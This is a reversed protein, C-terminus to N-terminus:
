HGTFSFHMYDQYNGSWNGGWKWGKAKFAKVLVGNRPISYPSKSPNWFSGAYVTSGRHSYNERVNIDIAVGYSHHSLNGSGGNNMYRFCYGAAEYIKFGGAQATKFVDQVDLVLQKHITLKGTTKNGSKTTLPMDVTAMYKKLGSETKPTGGPFLFKLKQASTGKAVQLSSGGGGSGMPAEKGHFQDYYRKASKKRRPLHNTGPDYSPREFLAMFATTARDLNTAKEWDVRRYRTGDYNSSSPGNVECSAYGNAGGGPKLEAILFEIQVDVNSAKEGKSRAYKEFATRRDGTWQCLGYGAGNAVEIKNTDFESESEINGMVAATAIESYGAARLSFWVKEEITNGYIGEVDSFSQPEFESFDYETIGYNHGTAKYLLYKVLDLKDATSENTEIIEFLWESADKIKSKNARYDFKKFITVFNPATKEDTKEKIEPTGPVYSQTTEINTVKDYMDVHRKYYKVEIDEEFHVTAEIVGVPTGDVTPMGEPDQLVATQVQNILEAKKAEIHECSFSDGTSSPQNPYSEDEEKVESTTTNATAENYTYKNEYDVIWVNAKTLAIDLTNTKTVVRKTTKYTSFAYPDHDKDSLTATATKGNCSAKITADVEAKTQETYHWEDIDTNITLNDHVTIQIDSNYILDTLEFIFNKDEGVVLLAWLLDFPMTYAEVMEGYNINTTTMEYQTTNKEEVGPDNSTVTTDIQEWTAVVVSYNVTDDDKEEEDTDEEVDEEDETDDGIDNMDNDTM